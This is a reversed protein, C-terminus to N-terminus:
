PRRQRRRDEHAAPHGGDRDDEGDRQPRQAIDGVGSRGGRLVGGEDQDGTHRAVEHPPPRGPRAGGQQKERRRGRREGCRRREGRRGRDGPERQRHVQQEEAHQGPQQAAVAAPMPLQDDAAPFPGFPQLALPPDQGLLGPQPLPRADGTVHVVGEAMLRAQDRQEGAGQFDVPRQPFPVAGQRGLQAGAGVGRHPPQVLGDAHQALAGLGLRGPLADLLQHLPRAAGPHIHLRGPPLVEGPKGRQHLARHVPDDLLRQRVGGLVGRAGRNLDPDADAGPVDLDGHDVSRRHM